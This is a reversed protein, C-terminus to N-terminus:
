THDAKITQTESSSEVPLQIHSLEIAFSEVRALRSKIQKQLTAHLLLAPIAVVLGLETTILAESIGSSVTDADGSGFLAMLQFTKIMGSVTGLLGLLPSVSAILAVTGLWKELKYRSDSLQIFLKDERHKIDRHQICINIIDSQIGRSSDLLSSLETPDNRNSAISISPGLSARWKPLRWLQLSKLLAIILALAGFFVIPWIWIGGKFIHEIPTEQQALTRSIQGLSPDFSLEINAETNELLNKDPSALALQVSAIKTDSDIPTLIGMNNDGWIAWAVPGLTLTKAKKLQGQTDLIKSVEWNPSLQNQLKDVVSQVQRLQAELQGGPALVRRTEESKASKNSAEEKFNTQYDIKKLFERSIYSQYHHQEQWSKLRLQLTELGITKEDALRQRFQVKNRLKIVSNEKKNLSNNLRQRQKLLNKEINQLKTQSKKISEILEKEVSSVSAAHVLSAGLFLCALVTSLVTPFASRANKTNSSIIKM